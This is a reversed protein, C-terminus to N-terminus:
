LNYMRPMLMREIAVPIIVTPGAVTAVLLAATPASNGVKALSCAHRTPSTDIAIKIEAIFTNSVRGLVHSKGSSKESEKGIKGSYSLNLNIFIM